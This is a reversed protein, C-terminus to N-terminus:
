TCFMMMSMCMVIGIMMTSMMVNMTLMNHDHDREVAGDDDCPEDDVDCGDDHEHLLCRVCRM